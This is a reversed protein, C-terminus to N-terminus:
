HGGGVVEAFSEARPVEPALTATEDLYVKLAAADKTHFQMGVGGPALLMVTGAQVDFLIAQDLNLVKGSPLKLLNM